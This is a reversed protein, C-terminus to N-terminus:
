QLTTHVEEWEGGAKTREGSFALSMWGRRGHPSKIECRLNLPLLGM